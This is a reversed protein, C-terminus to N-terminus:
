QSLLLNIYYTWFRAYRSTWHRWTEIWSHLMPWLIKVGQTETKMMEAVFVVDRSLPLCQTFPWLQFPSCPMAKARLLVQLNQKWWLWANRLYVQTPYFWFSFFVIYLYSYYFSKSMWWFEMFSCFFPIFDCFYYSLPFLFLSSLQTGSHRQEQRGKSSGAKLKSAEGVGGYQM